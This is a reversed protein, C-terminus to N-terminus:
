YIRPNIAGEGLSSLSNVTSSGVAAANSVLAAYFQGNNFSTALSQTASSFTATLKFVFLSLSIYFVNGKLATFRNLIPEAFSLFYQVQQM